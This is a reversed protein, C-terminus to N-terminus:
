KLNLIIQEKIQKMGLVTPHGDTKDIDRLRVYPIDFHKSVEVLGNTIEEKLNTNIICIIETEPLATKLRKFFHCIAPLVTYLEERTVEGFNLEGFQAGCWSDNTAGFVLITDIKTKEFFGESLLKEFRFIFSSDGSCDRNGYGTYCITSGSWSNNMVLNSGTEEKLLHWWTEEVRTVDTEKTPVTYYHCAYGEPIYGEFTSYSDGFIMFNKLNM